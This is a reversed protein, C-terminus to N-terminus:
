RTARSAARCCSAEDSVGVQIDRRSVAGAAAAAPRSAPEIVLDYQAAVAGWVILSITGATKGDILIERPQVVTADGVGSQDRLGCSTSIPRSFTSRGATLNFRM